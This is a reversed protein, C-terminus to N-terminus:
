GRGGNVHSMKRTAGENGKRTQEIQVSSVDMWKRKQEHQNITGVLTIKQVFM